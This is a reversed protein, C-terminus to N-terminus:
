APMDCVRKRLKRQKAQMAAVEANNQAILAAVYVQQAREALRLAAVASARLAPLSVAPSPVNRAPRKLPVSEATDLHTLHTDSASMGRRFLWENPVHEYRMRRQANCLRRRALERQAVFTVSPFSDDAWAEPTATAFFCAPPQPRLDLTVLSACARVAPLLHMADLDGCVGVMSLCLHRLHTNSTRLAETVRVLASSGLFIRCVTLSHLTPSDSAILRALSACMTHRHPDAWADGVTLSELTGHGTLADVIATFVVPDGMSPGCSAFQKLSSARLAAALVVATHADAFRMARNKISLETLVPLMRLLAPTGTPLMECAVMSLHTIRSACVCDALASMARDEFLSFNCVELATLDTYAPLRQLLAVQEDVSAHFGEMANVVVLRMRRVSVAAFVGERRIVSEVSTPGCVVSANLRQLRPAANVIAAVGITTMFRGEFTLVTLSFASRRLGEAVFEATLPQGSLDLERIGHAYGLMFSQFAHESLVGVAAVSLDVAFWLHPQIAFARWRSNLASCALRDTVTLKAWIMSMSKADLCELPDFDPSSM